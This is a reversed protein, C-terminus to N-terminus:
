GWMGGHLRGLYDGVPPDRFEHEGIVDDINKQRRKIARAVIIVLVPPGLFAIWNWM